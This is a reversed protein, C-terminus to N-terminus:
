ARVVRRVLLFRVEIQNVHPPWVKAYERMEEIHGRGFNSVGISRTKGEELLRELAQWMEKRAAKGGSPSHILFLDVYGKDGPDMSQVSDVCKQYTAQDSGGSSLIKTTLFVESRPVGSQRLAQGVEAENRYFQASDIHRYGARLATLCSTICQKGHSQYVGFGLRPITIQSNPLPLPLTSTLTLKPPM